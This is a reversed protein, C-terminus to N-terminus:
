SLLIASTLASRADPASGRAAGLWSSCFNPLERSRVLGLREEHMNLQIWKPYKSTRSTNSAVPWYSRTCSTCFVMVDDWEEDRPRTAARHRGRRWAQKKDVREGVFLDLRHKVTVVGLVRSALELAAPSQGDSILLLCGAFKSMHVHFFESGARRRRPLRGRRWRLCTRRALGCCDRSRRRRMKIPRRRGVHGPANQRRRPGIGHRIGAKWYPFARHELHRM